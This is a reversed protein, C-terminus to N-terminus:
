FKFFISILFKEKQNKLYNELIKEIKLFFFRFVNLIQISTEEARKEYNEFSKELMEISTTIAEYKHRYIKLDESVASFENQVFNNLGELEKMKM